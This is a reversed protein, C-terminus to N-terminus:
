FDGPFKGSNLPESHNIPALRDRPSMFVGPVAAKLPVRVVAKVESRESTVQHNCVLVSLLCKFSFTVHGSLFRSYGCGTFRQFHLFRFFALKPTEEATEGTLRNKRAAYNKLWNFSCELAIDTFVDNLAFFAVSVCVTGPVHREGSKKVLNAVVGADFACVLDYVGM